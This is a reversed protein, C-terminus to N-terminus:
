FYSIHPSVHWLVILVPIEVFINEGTIVLML